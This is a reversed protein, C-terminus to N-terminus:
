EGTAQAKLERQIALQQQRAWVEQGYKAEYDTVAQTFAAPDLGAVSEYTARAKPQPTPAAVTAKDLDAMLRDLREQAIKDILELVRAM